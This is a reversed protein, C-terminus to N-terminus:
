SRARQALLPALRMPVVEVLAIVTSAREVGPATLVQETIRYLDATDRAVVRALLDGEGTTALVEVVEPIAALAAAAGEGGGRQSLSLTMFALLGRDLAAAEVRRSPAGLAGEAELRRLRAHVTNRALGLRTSLAMTSAQPDDDLALLIRADTADLTPM